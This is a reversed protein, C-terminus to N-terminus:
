KGESIGEILEEGYETYDVGTGQRFATFLKDETLVRSLAPVFASTAASYAASKKDTLSEAHGKPLFYLSMSEPDQLTYTVLGHVACARLFEEMYRVHIKCAQALETFTVGDKKGSDQLEKLKLFIGLKHGTYVVMLRLCGLLDKVINQQFNAAEM